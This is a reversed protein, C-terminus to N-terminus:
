SEPMATSEKFLPPVAASEKLLLPGVRFNVEWIGTTGSGDMAHSPESPTTATMALTRLSFFDAALFLASGLEAM